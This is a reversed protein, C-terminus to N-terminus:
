TKSINVWYNMSLKAGSWGVCTFITVPYGLLLYPAICGHYIIKKIRPWVGDENGSPKVTNERIFLQM